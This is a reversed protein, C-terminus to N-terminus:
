RNTNLRWAESIQTSKRLQMCDCRLHGRGFLRDSFNLVLHKSIEVISGKKLQVSKHDKTNGSRIEPGKTDLAVAV